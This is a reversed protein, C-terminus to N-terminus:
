FMCPHQNMFTKVVHKNVMAQRTNDPHSRGDIELLPGTATTSRSATALLKAFIFLDQLHDFLSLDTQVLLHQRCLFESM